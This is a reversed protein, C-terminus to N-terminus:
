THCPLSEELPTEEQIMGRVRNDYLQECEELVAVPFNYGSVVIVFSHRSLIYPPVLILMGTNGKWIARPVVRPIPVHRM